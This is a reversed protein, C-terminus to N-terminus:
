GQVRHGFNRLARFNDIFSENAKEAVKSSYIMFFSPGIPSLTIIGNGKLGHPGTRLTYRLLPILSWQKEGYLFLDVWM